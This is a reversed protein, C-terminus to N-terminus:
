LNVIEEIYEDCLMNYAVAKHMDNEQGFTIYKQEYWGSCVAYWFMMIHLKFSLLM